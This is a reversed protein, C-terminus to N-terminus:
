ATQNRYLKRWHYLGYIANIFFVGYIVSTLYLGKAAYIPVAIADVLLWGIWNELKRQMLLLQSMISFTLIISDLFPFSADTFSHLLTGYVGTLVLSILTFLACTKFGALTIPRVKAPGALWQKWGYISTIVFFIQLTVDAYLKAEYFMVGFLTCGIIGIWWTHINNRSALFIGLLNAVNAVLELPSM